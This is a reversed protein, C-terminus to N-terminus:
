MVGIDKFLQETYDALYNEHYERRYASIMNNVLEKRLEDFNEICYDIKEELDRFNHACAVYTVYNEYINPYTELHAMSPKILISGCTASFIDRPALEGYGFPALHIKSALQYQTWMEPPVRVGNRLKAVMYDLNSTVDFVKQRYENYYFDQSPKLDFEHCEEHPHQFMLSLDFLKIFNSYDGFKDNDEVGLWNKGSLYLKDCHKDWDEPVYNQDPIGWDESKGWYCRGGVWPEKYLDRELLMTDKFMAIADSNIFTEWAGIVSHSDQGDMLIYPGEIKDLLELGKELSAEFSGLKKDQFLSHGIMTIDYDKADSDVLQIGRTALQHFSKIYPQFTHYDKTLIRVKLDIMM